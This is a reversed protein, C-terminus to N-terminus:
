QGGGQAVAFRKRLAHYHSNEVCVDGDKDTMEQHPIGWSEIERNVLPRLHPAVIFAKHTDINVIKM